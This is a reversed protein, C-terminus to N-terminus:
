RSPELRVDMELTFNLLAGAPVRVEDGKTLVQGAGESAAGVGAVIAASKTGGAIAGNLAGPAWGRGRGVIERPERRPAIGEQGTEGVDGAIVLYRLGGLTVAELDLVLESAATGTGKAKQLVLEADSGRPIALAGTHDLIDREIVALFLQGVFDTRSHITEKSRVAFETRSPIIKLSDRWENPLSGNKSRNMGKFNMEQAFALLHMTCLGFALRAALLFLHKKM